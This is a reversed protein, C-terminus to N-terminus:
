LRPSTSRGSWASTKRGSRPRTRRGPKLTPNTNIEYIQV